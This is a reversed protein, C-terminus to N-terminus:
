KLGVGYIHILESTEFRIWTEKPNYLITRSSINVHVGGGGNMHNLKWKKRGAM